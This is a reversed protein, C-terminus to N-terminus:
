AATPAESPGLRSRSLRLAREWRAHELRLPANLERCEVCRLSGTWRVRDSLECGCALCIFAPSSTMVRVIASVDIPQM